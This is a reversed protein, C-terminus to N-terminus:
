AAAVRPLEVSTRSRKEELAKRLRVVEEALMRILDSNTGGGALSMNDLLATVDGSAAAAPAAAVPTAPAAVPAPAAAPQTLSSSPKLSIAAAADVQPYTAAPSPQGFAPLQTPPPQLPLGPPQMLSAGPMTQGQLGSASPPLRAPAMALSSALGMGMGNVGMGMGHMGGFGPAMGSIGMGAMGLGMGGAEMGNGMGLGMGNGMGMPAGLGGGMSMTPMGNMGGPMLGAMLNGGGAMLGPMGFGAGMLGPAAPLGPMGSMLGGMGMMGMGAGTMSGMGLMGGMGDEAGTWGGLSRRSTASSAAVVGPTAERDLSKRRSPEPAAKDLSKRRVASADTSAGRSPPDVSKRVDSSRRGKDGKAKWEATLEGAAVKMLMKGVGEADQQELTHHYHKGREGAKHTHGWVVIPVTPYKDRLVKRLADSFEEKGPATFHHSLLAVDCKGTAAVAKQIKAVADVAKWAPYVKVPGVFRKAEAVVDEFSALEKEDGVLLVTFGM